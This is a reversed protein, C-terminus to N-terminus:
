ATTIQKIQSILNKLEESTIKDDRIASEFSMILYKIQTVKNKMTQWKTGTYGILVTLLVGLIWDINGMLFNVIYEKM